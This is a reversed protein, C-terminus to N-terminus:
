FRSRTFFAQFGILLFIKTYGKESMANLASNFGLDMTNLIYICVVLGILM